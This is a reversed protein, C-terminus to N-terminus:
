KKTACYSINITNNELRWFDISDLAYKFIFMTFHFYEEKEIHMYVWALIKGLLLLFIAFLVCLYFKVIWGNSLEFSLTQLINHKKSYELYFM